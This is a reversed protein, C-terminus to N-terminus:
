IQVVRVQGDVAEVYTGQCGISGGDVVWPIGRPENLDRHARHSHGIVGGAIGEKEQYLYAQDLVKACHLNYDRLRGRMLRQAPTPRLMVKLLFPLHPYFWGLLRDFSGQVQDHQHGHRYFVADLTVWEGVEAGPYLRSYMEISPDHNGVLVKLRSGLVESLHRTHEHAAKSPEQNLIEEWRRCMPDDWDGALVVADPRRREALDLFAHIWDYRPERTFRSNIQGIHADSAELVLMTM